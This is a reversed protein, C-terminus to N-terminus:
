ETHYQVPPYMDNHQKTRKTALDHGVRQSEMSQLGGPGGPMPNELCSYRLPTSGGNEANAPLNKVVLGGAFGM